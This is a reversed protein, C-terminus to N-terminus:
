ALLARLKERTAEDGTAALAAKVAAATAPERLAARGTDCAALALLAAAASDVLAGDAPNYTLLRAAAPVAGETVLREAVARSQALFSIRQAANRQMFSDKSNEALHVVHRATGNGILPGIHWGLYAVALTACVAYVKGPPVLAGTDSSAPEKGAGQGQCYGRSPLIPLRRTGIRGTTVTAAAARPIVVSAVHRCLAAM